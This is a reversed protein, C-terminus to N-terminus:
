LTHNIQAPMALRAGVLIIHGHRFCKPQL